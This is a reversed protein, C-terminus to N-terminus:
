VWPLTPGREMPSSLSSWSLSEVPMSFEPLRCFNGVGQSIRYDFCDPAPLKLSATVTFLVQVHYSTLVPKRSLVWILTGVPHLPDRDDCAWGLKFGLNRRGPGFRYECHYLQWPLLQQEGSDTPALTCEHWAGDDQLQLDPLRYTDGSGSNYLDFTGTITTSKTPRVIKITTVEYRRVTLSSTNTISGITCSRTYPTHPMVPLQNAEYGTFNTAPMTCQFTAKPRLVRGRLSRTTHNAPAVCTLSLPM